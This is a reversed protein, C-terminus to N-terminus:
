RRVASIPVSSTHGFEGLDFREGVMQPPMGDAQRDAADVDGGQGHQFREIRRDVRQLALRHDPGLPPALVQPQLGSLQQQDGMQRAGAPQPPGVLQGRRRQPWALPRDRQPHVQTGRTGRRSEVEGLGAGLFPQRHPQDFVGLLHRTDGGEAWIRQIETGVVQGANSAPLVPRILVTMVSWFTIAPM